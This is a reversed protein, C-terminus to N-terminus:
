VFGVVSRGPIMLRLPKRPHSAWSTMPNLVLVEYFGAVGEQLGMVFALWRVENLSGEQATRGSNHLTTLLSRNFEVLSASQYLSAIM